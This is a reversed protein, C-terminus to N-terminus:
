EEKDYWQKEYAREYKEDSWHACEDSRRRYEEDAISAIEDDEFNEAVWHLYGSPLNVIPTGKYAGSPMVPKDSKEFTIRPM